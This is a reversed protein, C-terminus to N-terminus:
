TVRTFQASPSESPRTRLKMFPGELYRQSLWALAVSVPVIVAFRGVLMGPGGLAADDLRLHRISWYYLDGIPFHVLYLCYSLGAIHKALRSRLPAWLSANPYLLSLTM